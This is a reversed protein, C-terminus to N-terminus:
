VRRHSSGLHDTICTVAPDCNLCSLLYLSAFCGNEDYREQCLEPVVYRLFGSSRKTRKVNARGEGELGAPIKETWANQKKATSAKAGKKGCVEWTFGQLCTWGSHRESPNWGTIYHELKVLDSLCCFRRRAGPMLDFGGLSCQGPWGDAPRRLGSRETEVHGSEQRARILNALSDLVSGEDLEM